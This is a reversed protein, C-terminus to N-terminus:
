QESYFNAVIRRVNELLKPDCGQSKINEVAYPAEIFVRHLINIAMNSGQNQWRVNADGFHKAMMRFLSKGYNWGSCICRRETTRRLREQLMQINIPEPLQVDEPPLMEMVIEIDVCMSLNVITTKYTTQQDGGDKSWPCKMMLMKVGLDFAVVEGSINEGFCTTCRVISGPTFCPALFSM